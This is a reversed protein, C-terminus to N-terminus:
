RPRRSHFKAPGGIPKGGGGNPKGGPGKGGGQARRAPELLKGFNAPTGEGRPISLRMTREIDRVDREQEQLAFTVARGTAGARGTRGIRHVYDEPNDPLDYNVVLGIGKVDIGRAAIDTAVLVRVEGKKFADLAAKRQALSRDSHLEAATHGFNRVVRALKRAGHRTRAFVLTTGDHDALIEGLLSGKEEQAVLRLEQEVLETATGASAVEVRIPDKQFHSAIAEIESPFTASFLMTHRQTPLGALIKKISPAFGMDLMRDAEDLIVADFDTLRLGQSMHDLLRGPTAVVIRPRRSLDERQRNMSAGGIVVTSRIGRPNAVKQLTEDIQLALERTPAVILARRTKNAVMREVLPLSFALTKGTGTQAIGVIDRGGLAAPIAAIQIPTPVTYGNRSLNALTEPTLGLAAFGSAEKKLQESM